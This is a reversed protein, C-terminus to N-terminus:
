RHGGTLRRLSTLGTRTISFSMCVSYVEGSPECKIRWLVTMVLVDLRVLRVFRRPRAVHLGIDEKGRPTRASGRATRLSVTCVCAAAAHRQAARYRAAGPAHHDHLSGVTDRTLTFKCVIKLTRPSARDVFM